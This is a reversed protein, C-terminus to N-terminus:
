TMDKMLKYKWRKGLRGRRNKEESKRNLVLQPIRNVDTRQVHSYWQMRKKDIKTTISIKISDKSSPVELLTRTKWTSIFNKIKKFNKKCVLVIEEYLPFYGVWLLIKLVMQTKLFFEEFYAFSTTSDYM